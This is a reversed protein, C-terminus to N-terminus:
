EVLLSKLYNEGDSIAVSLVDLTKDSVNDHRMMEKKISKQRKILRDVVIHSQSLLTNQERILQIILCKLDDSYNDTKKDDIKKLLTGARYFISKGHTKSKSKRPKVM